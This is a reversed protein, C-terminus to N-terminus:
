KKGKCKKAPVPDYGCGGWPHCRLIRKFTLLSGKFFGYKQLAEQAYESCTPVFRCCPCKCPSIYKRYLAVSKQALFSLVNM